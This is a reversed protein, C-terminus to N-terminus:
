SGSGVVYLFASMCTISSSYPEVIVRSRDTRGDQATIKMNNRARATEPWFSLQDNGTAHSLLPAIKSFTEPFDVSRFKKPSPHFIWTTIMHGSYQIHKATSFPRMKARLVFVFILAQFHWFHATKLSSCSCSFLGENQMSNLSFISINRFFTKM